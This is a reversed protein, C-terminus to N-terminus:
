KAIKSLWDNKRKEFEAQRLNLSSYDIQPVHVKLHVPEEYLM